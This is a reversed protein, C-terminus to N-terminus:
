KKDEGIKKAVANGGATVVTAGAGVAAPVLISSLAAGLGVIGFLRENKPNEEDEVKSYLYMAYVTMIIAYVMLFSFPGKPFKM